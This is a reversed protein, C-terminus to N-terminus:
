PTWDDLDRNSQCSRLSTGASGANGVMPLQQKCSWAVVFIGRAPQRGRRRRMQLLLCHPAAERVVAASRMSRAADAM